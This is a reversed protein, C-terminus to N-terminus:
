GGITQANQGYKAIIEQVGRRQQTAIQLMLEATALWMSFDRDNSAKLSQPVLLHEVDDLCNTAHGLMNKKIYSDSVRGNLESVTAREAAARARISEVQNDDQNEM